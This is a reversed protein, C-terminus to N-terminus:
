GNPPVAQRLRAAASEQWRQVTRVSVGFLDAIEAQAWGHYYMLGIVEREQVPLREVAEHFAAARELDAADATQDPLHHGREGGGVDALNMGHGRPGYYHRTLDLLERRILQATLAYFHRRSTPRFQRCAAFLRLLSNQVVDEVDVFRGLRPFRAFMGRTLEEVRAVVKRWVPDTAGPRGLEPDPVWSPFGDPEPISPNQAM